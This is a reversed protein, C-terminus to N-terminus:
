LRNGEEDIVGAEVAAEFDKPHLVIMRDPEFPANMAAEMAERTFPAAADIGSSKPTDPMRGEPMVAAAVAVVVFGGHERLHAKVQRYHTLERYDGGDEWGSEIFKSVVEAAPTGSEIIWSVGGRRRDGLLGILIDHTSKKAQDLSDEDACWGMVTASNEPVQKRSKPGLHRRPRGNPM